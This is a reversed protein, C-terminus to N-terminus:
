FHMSDRYHSRDPEESREGFVVVNDVFTRSKLRGCVKIRRFISLPPPSVHVEADFLLLISYISSRRASKQLSSSAAHIDESVLSLRTNCRM